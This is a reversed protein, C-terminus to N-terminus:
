SYVGHAGKATLRRRDSFWQDAGEREMHADEADLKRLRARIAGDMASIADIMGDAAAANYDNAQLSARWQRLKEIAEAADEILRELESRDSM